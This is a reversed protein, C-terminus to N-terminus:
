MYLIILKSLGNITYISFIMYTYIYVCVYVYIYIGVNEKVNFKYTEDNDFRIVM